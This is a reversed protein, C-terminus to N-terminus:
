PVIKAQSDMLVDLPKMQNQDIVQQFALFHPDDTSPPEYLRDKWEGVCRRVEIYFEDSIVSTPDSGPIGGGASTVPTMM